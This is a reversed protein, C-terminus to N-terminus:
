KVTKICLAELQQDMIFGIYKSGREAYALGIVANQNPAGLSLVLPTEKGDKRVGISISWPMVEPRMDFDHLPEAKRGFLIHKGDAVLELGEVDVTAKENDLNVFEGIVQCKYVDEAFAAISVFFMLVLLHKM